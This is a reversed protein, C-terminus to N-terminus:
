WSLWWPLELRRKLPFLQALYLHFVSLDTCYGLGGSPPARVGSGHPFMLGERHHSATLAPPQLFDRDGTADKPIKGSFAAGAVPPSLSTGQGQLKRPSLPGPGQRPLKGTPNLSFTLPCPDCPPGRPGDVMLTALHHSSGLWPFPRSRRFPRLPPPLSKQRIDKCGDSGVTGRHRALNVRVRLSRLGPTIRRHQPPARAPGLQGLAAGLSWQPLHPLAHPIGSLCLTLM